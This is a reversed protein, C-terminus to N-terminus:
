PAAAAAPRAFRKRLRDFRPDRHLDRFVPHMIHFNLSNDAVAKELWVFAQDYNRMGTYVTAIGFTGHSHKRGALLDSLISAAEDHQGARALAYGLFALGFGASHDTAWRFEAVAESWM